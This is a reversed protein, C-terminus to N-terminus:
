TDKRTGYGPSHPTQPHVAKRGGLGKDPRVGAANQFRHDAPQHFKSSAAMIM